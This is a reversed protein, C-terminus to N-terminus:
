VFRAKHLMKHDIFQQLQTQLSSEKVWLVKACEDVFSKLRVQRKGMLQKALMVFMKQAKDTVADLTNMAGSLLADRSLAGKGSERGEFSEKEYPVLTDV